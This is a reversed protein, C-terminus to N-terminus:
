SSELLANGSLEASIVPVAGMALSITAFFLYSALLRNHGNLFAVLCMLVMNLVMKGRAGPRKGKETFAFDLQRKGLWIAVAVGIGVGVCQAAVEPAAALFLGLVFLAFGQITKKQRFLQKFQISQFAALFSKIFEGIVVKTKGESQNVSLLIAEFSQFGNDAIDTRKKSGGDELADFFDNIFSKRQELTASEIWQDFIHNYYEAEASRTPVTCFHDGEIQWTMGDHQLLGSASSKVIKTPIEREFLAGIM